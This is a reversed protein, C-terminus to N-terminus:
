PQKSLFSFSFFTDPKINELLGFNVLCLLLDFLVILLDAVNAAELSSHWRDKPGASSFALLTTRGRPSCKGRVMASPHSRLRSILVCLLM